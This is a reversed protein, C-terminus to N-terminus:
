EVAKFGSFIHQCEELATPAVYTCVENFQAWMKHVEPNTHANKIAEESVWEFVELITGNKAEMIVPTRNTAMQLGLLITVHEKVLAKLAEAKGEKPQYCVLVIQTM